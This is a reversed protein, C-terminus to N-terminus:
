KKYLEGNKVETLYYWVDEVEQRGGGRTLKGITVDNEYPLLKKLEQFTPKNDFAAVFYEGCQNYDNVEETIIWM